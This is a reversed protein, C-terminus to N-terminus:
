PKGLEEDSVEMPAKSAPKRDFFQTGDKKRHGLTREAWRIDTGKVALRHRRTREHKHIAAPDRAPIVAECVTCNLPRDLRSAGRKSKRHKTRSSM